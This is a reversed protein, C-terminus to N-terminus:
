LRYYITVINMFGAYVKDDVSTFNHLKTRRLDKAFGAAPTQKTRMAGFAFPINEPSLKKFTKSCKHQIFFATATNCAKSCLQQTSHLVCHMCPRQQMDQQPQTSHLVCHDTIQNHLNALPTFEYHVPPLFQFDITAAEEM